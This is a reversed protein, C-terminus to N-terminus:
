AGRNDMPVDADNEFRYTQAKASRKPTAAKPYELLEITKKM